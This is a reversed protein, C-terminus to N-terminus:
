MTNNKEEILHKIEEIVSELERVGQDPSSLFVRDLRNNVDDPKINMLNLSQKQWKYSPHHVYLCNLGFLLGMIKSQTETLLSYLMLWDEREILAYRHNWKEGLDLHAEVMNQSLVEPYVLVKAKLGDLLEEGHLPVGYHISAALCQDEINVQFEKTVRQIRKLVEETLFSSIEFKVGNVTYVESWEEDEYDNFHVIVGNMREIVVKRDEDSPPETWCINLEIDSYQDEWGRSVSGVIYVAEVKKNEKYVDAAQEALQKLNM